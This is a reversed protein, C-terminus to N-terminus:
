QGAARNCEGNEPATGSREAGFRADVGVAGVNQMDRARRAGVAGFHASALGLRLDGRAGRIEHQRGGELDSFVQERDGDIARGITAVFGDREDDLDSVADAGIERCEVALPGHQADGDFAPGHGRHRDVAFREGEPGVALPKMLDVDGGFAGTQGVVRFADLTGNGVGYDAGGTGRFL